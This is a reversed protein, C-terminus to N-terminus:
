DEQQSQLHHKIVNKATNNVHRTMCKKALDGDRCRIADLVAQHEALSSQARGESKLSAGRTRGVYNHLDRLIHKLMRSKSMSYLLQHFQGDMTKLQDYNKRELYFRALDVIETLQGIEEETAENAAREAAMGEILSRIEYIDQIDEATIGTVVAGKNPTIEVLEELELQRLAERVPTRSVHLEKALGLETVAEGISYRGSLIDSRIHAYVRTTLNTGVPASDSYGADM